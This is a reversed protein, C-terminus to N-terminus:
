NLIEIDFYLNFYAGVRDALSYNVHNFVVDCANNIVLGNYNYEGPFTIPVGVGTVINVGVPAVINQAPLCPHQAMGILVQFQQTNNDYPNIVTGLTINRFFIDFIIRRVAFTRTSVIIQSTTLATAGANVVSTGGISYATNKRPKDMIYVIGINLGVCIIIM